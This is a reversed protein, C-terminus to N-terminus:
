GIKLLREPEISFSYYTFGGMKGQIAPICEEMNSIEQNAFLNGLLQYKASTGLHKTLEIYYDVIADSFYVIGWEQLKDMDARSMIYNHTAWIFKVKRKPYRAQAERRLGEMQGRLAEIPKKFKGDTMIEAAKCEVFIITEEDTAFVDIQQTFEPNQHDYSMVFYRDSNMFSFGMNAFLMWVKDEFIEDAPKDKRIGVFKPNKYERYKEWGEEEFDPLALTREKRVVYTKSRLTKASALERGSVVKDWTTKSGNM